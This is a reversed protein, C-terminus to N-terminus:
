WKLQAMSEYAARVTTETHREPHIVINLLTPFCKPNGIKGLIRVLKEVVLDNQHMKENSDRYEPNNYIYNHDLLALIIFFTREHTYNNELFKVSNTKDEFSGLKSLSLYASNLGDNLISEPDKSNVATRSDQAFLSVPM